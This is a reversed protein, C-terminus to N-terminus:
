IIKRHVDELMVRKEESSNRMRVYSVYAGKQVREALDAHMTLQVPMQM